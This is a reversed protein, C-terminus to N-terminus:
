ICINDEKYKTRVCYVIKSATCNCCLYRSFGKKDIHATAKREVCLSYLVCLHSVSPKTGTALKFSM